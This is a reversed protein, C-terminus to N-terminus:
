ANSLEQQIRKELEVKDIGLNFLALDTYEKATRKSCSFQLMVSYLLKVYPLSKRDYFNKSITASIQKIIEARQEQRIKIINM